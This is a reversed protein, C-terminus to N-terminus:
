DEGYRELLESVEDLLDTSSTPKTLFTNAGAQRAAIRDDDQSSATLVIIPIAQTDPRARIHRVLTIGDMGPMSVDIIALDFREEDLLELAEAGGAAIEVTYGAHRLTHGLVRQMVMQDDVVLISTM